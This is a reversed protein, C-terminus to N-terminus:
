QDGGLIETYPGNSRWGYSGNWRWGYSRARDRVAKDGDRDLVEQVDDPVKRLDDWQRPTRDWEDAPDAGPDSWGDRQGGLRDLAGPALHADHPSTDGCGGGCPTTLSDAELKALVARIGARFLDRRTPSLKEWPLLPTVRADRLAEYLIRALDDVRQEDGRTSALHDAENRLVEASVLNGLSELYDAAGHLGSLYDSM